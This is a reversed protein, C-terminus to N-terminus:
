DHYGQFISSPLSLIIGVGFGFHALGIAKAMAINSSSGRNDVKTGTKWGGLTWASGGAIPSQSTFESSVTDSASIMRVPLKVM